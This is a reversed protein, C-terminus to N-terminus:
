LLLAWAAITTAIAIVLCFLLMPLVATKMLRLDTEKEM